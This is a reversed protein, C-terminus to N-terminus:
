AGADALVRGAGAAARERGALLRTLVRMITATTITAAEDVYCTGVPTEWPAYCADDTVRLNAHGPWRGDPQQWALLTRLHAGLDAERRGRLLGVGIMCGLDFANDVETPRAAAAGAPEALGLAELAELTVFTSYCPTRWWYARWMGDAMRSAALGRLFDGRLRVQDAARM